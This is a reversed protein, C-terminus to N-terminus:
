ILKIIQLLMFFSSFQLVQAPYHNILIKPILKLRNEEIQNVIFYILLPLQFSSIPLQLFIVFLDICTNNTPITLSRSYDKINSRRM